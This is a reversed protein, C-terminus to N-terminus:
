SIDWCMWASTSFNRCQFTNARRTIINRSACPQIDAVAKTNITVLQRSVDNDSGSRVGLIDNDLGISGNSDVVLWNTWRWVRFRAPDSGLAALSRGQQLMGRKQPSVPASGPVTLSLKRLLWDLPKPPQNFSISDFWTSMCPPRPRIACRMRLPIRDRTRRAALLTCKTDISVYYPANDACYRM